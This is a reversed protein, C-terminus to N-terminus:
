TIGTEDSGGVVAGTENNLPRITASGDPDDIYRLEESSRDVYVVEVSGDGDVDAATPPSKAADTASFVTTGGGSPRRNVIVENGGDVAVLAPTGDGDVDILSGSGIGNNSGTQGSDVNHTSGDSELYRLQQSGDAFVLEDDGDGDIDGVGVVAQAGNGPTAVATPSEGPAVRYITAHNQDVFFVSADSGNWRGGALRTKQYEVADPIDSSTALTQTSGRPGTVKVAGSSTVYPVDLRGDGTVDVDPQGLGAVGSTDPLTEVSGGDGEIVKIGDVSGTFLTGGFGGNEGNSGVETVDFEALIYSSEEGSEFWLLRVTESVPDVVVSQGAALQQGTLRTENVVGRVVFRDGDITDGSRHVLTYAGPTDTPELGVAVDPAPPQTETADFLVGATVASLLVVVAVFLVTGVVPSLGRGDGGAFGIM